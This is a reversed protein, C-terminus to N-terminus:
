QGQMCVSTQHSRHHSHCPHVGYLKILNIPETCENQRLEMALNDTMSAVFNLALPKGLLNVNWSELVMTTGVVKIFPKQKVMVIKKHFDSDQFCHPKTSDGAEVEKKILDTIPNDLFNDEYGVNAVGNERHKERKISPDVEEGMVKEIKKKERGLKTEDNKTEEGDCLTHNKIVLGEKSKNESKLFQLPDSDCEFNSGKLNTGGEISRDFSPLEVEILALYNWREKGLTLRQKVLNQGM